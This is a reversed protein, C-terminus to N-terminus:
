KKDANEKKYQIFKEIIMQEIEQDTSTVLTYYTFSCYVMFEELQNDELKTLRQVIEPNYKKPLRFVEEQNAVLNAYMRDLKARRSFRDYLYTIPHALPTGRLMNGNDPHYNAKEEPSVEIGPVEVKKSPIEKAIDKIFLPYPKMAYITVNRLMFARVVLWISIREKSAILSDHLVVMEIDYGMCSVILTDTKTALIAFDGNKNCFTMMGSSMNHICSNELPQSTILDMIKGKVLVRDQSFGLFNGGCFLLVLCFHRFDLKKKRNM